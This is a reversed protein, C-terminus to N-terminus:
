KIAKAIEKLMDEYTSFGEGESNRSIFEANAKRLITSLTALEMESLELTYKKTFEKKCKM